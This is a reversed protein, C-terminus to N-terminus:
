DTATLTNPLIDYWSRGDRRPEDLSIPAFKFPHLQYFRSTVSRIGEVTLEIEGELFKLIADQCIDSRVHDPLNKSVLANVRQIIDIGDTAKQWNSVYPWNELRKPVNQKTISYRARTVSVTGFTFGTERAIETPGYGLKSLELIRKTKEGLVKGKQSGGRGRSLGGLKLAKVADWYSVGCKAVIQPITVGDTYEPSIQFLITRYKETAADIQWQRGNKINVDAGHLITYVSQRTLGFKLYLSKVTWGERALSIIQRNRTARTTAAAGPRSGPNESEFDSTKVM